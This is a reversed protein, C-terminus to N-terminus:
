ALYKIQNFTKQQSYESKIASKIKHHTFSSWLFAKQKATNTCM